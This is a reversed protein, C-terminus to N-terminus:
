RAKAAIGEYVALAQRYEQLSEPPLVDQNRALEEKM